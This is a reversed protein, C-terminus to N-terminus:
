GSEGKTLPNEGGLIEQATSCYEKQFCVECAGDCGDIVRTFGSNEVERITEEVTIQNISDIANCM